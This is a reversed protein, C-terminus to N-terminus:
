VAMPPSQSLMLIAPFMDVMLERGRSVRCYSVVTRRIGTECMSGGGHLLSLRSVSRRYRSNRWFHRWRHTWLIWRIRRWISLIKWIESTSFKFQRNRVQKRVQEIHRAETPHTIHVLRYIPITAPLTDDPFDVWKKHWPHQPRFEAPSFFRQTGGIMIMRCKGSIGIDCTHM